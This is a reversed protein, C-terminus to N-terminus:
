QSHKIHRLAASVLCAFVHFFFLFSFPVVMCWWNVMPKHMAAHMCQVFTSACLCKLKCPFPRAVANPCVSVSYHISSGDMWGYSKDRQIESRDSTFWMWPYGLFVVVLVIVPLLIHPPRLVQFPINDDSGCCCAAPPPLRPPPPGSTVVFGLFKLKSSSSYRPAAYCQSGGDGGAAAAAAGPPMTTTRQSRVYYCQLSTSPSMDSERIGHGRLRLLQLQSIRPSASANADDDVEEPRGGRRRRTETASAAADDRCSRVNPAAIRARTGPEDINM